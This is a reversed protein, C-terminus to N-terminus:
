KMKDAIRTRVVFYSEAPDNPNVRIRVSDMPDMQYFDSIWNSKMPEVFARGQYEYEAIYQFDESNSSHNRRLVIKADIQPWHRICLRTKLTSFGIYAFVAVLLTGTVIEFLNTTSGSM